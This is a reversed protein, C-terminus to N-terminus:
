KGAVRLAASIFLFLVGLAGCLAGGFAMQGSQSRLYALYGEPAGAYLTSATVLGAREWIGEVTLLQGLLYGVYRRTADDETAEIRQANAFVVTEPLQVVLGQGEDIFLEIRAPPPTERRWATAANPTAAGSDVSQAEVYYLALGHPGPAMTEPLYGRFLARAGLELAALGGFDPRPLHAAERARQWALPAGWGATMIGSFCAFLGLLLFLVSLGPKGRRFFGGWEFHQM